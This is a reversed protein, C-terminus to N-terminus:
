IEDGAHVEIVHSGELAYLRCPRHRGAPSCSCPGLRRAGTVLLGPMGGMCGIGNGGRLDRGCQHHSAPRHRGAPRRRRFLAAGAGAPIRDARRALGRVLWLALDLRLMLAAGGALVLNAAGLLWASLATERPTPRKGGLDGDAGPRPVAFDAGGPDRRHRRVRLVRRYRDPLRRRHWKPADMRVIKGTM